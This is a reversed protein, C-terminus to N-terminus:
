ADLEKLKHLLVDVDIPKAIYDNAGAAICKEKDGKMAQATVAIVLMSAGDETSRIRSLAQYGDMGPMMMDLLIASISGSNNHLLSLGEEASLASLVEYGSAQLTAKLAFINRSDDDIILLQRSM